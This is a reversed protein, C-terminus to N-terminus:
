MGTSYERKHTARFIGAAVVGGVLEFVSFTLCNTWPAHPTKNNVAVSSTALGFSVAPNLEGGSVAGVAFGGATVCSGIALAFQFNQKSVAAAPPKVTAVALVVFALMFSFVMEVVFVAGWSFQGGQPKHGPALSFAEKGFPGAAHFDAVLLGALVGAAIQALFYMLGHLPLCVGRRSLVVALTVAPNFHGGSVNGLSYIMCMLAAAASWATAPSKTVVNLGVTMVLTFTGLFESAVKSVLQPQRGGEQQDGRRIAIELEGGQGGLLRERRRQWEDYPLGRLDVTLTGLSNEKVINNENIVQLTLLGPDEDRPLHFTFHNGMTWTPNLSNNITPTRFETLGVRATIYPDSVDGFMGSDRNRLNHASLVEVQLVRGGPTVAEDEKFRCVHFFIAALGSGLFQFGLYALRWWRFDNAGTGGNGTVDLGLTIAPNLSAGSIGGAAYGGAVVVFGIALGFFHNQDDKPNNRVSTACCLHAFALIATYFLESVGAHFWGYTEKPGLKGAQDFTVWYLLGALIGAGIQFVMYGFVKSWRTKGTIGCAFSVAPNFHGGSVPGLGYIMVMLMAAIATANWAGDGVISCVGATFVLMFTGVFEAAYPAGLELPSMKEDMEGTGMLRQTM